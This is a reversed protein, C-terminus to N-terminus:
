PKSFGIVVSFICRYLNPILYEFAACSKPITISRDEYFGFIKDEIYAKYSKARASWLKRWAILSWREPKWGPDIKVPERLWPRFGLELQEVDLKETGMAKYAKIDRLAAEWERLVLGLSIGDFVTHPASIGVATVGPYHGIHLYLLPTTPSPPFTLCFEPSPSFLSLPPKRYIETSYQSTQSYPYVTELLESSTSHSFLFAPTSPNFEPPVALHWPTAMGDGQIRAGLVRWREIVAQLAEKALDVNIHGDIIWGFRM